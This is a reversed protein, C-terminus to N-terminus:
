GSSDDDSTWRSQGVIVIAPALRLRLVGSLATHGSPRPLLNLEDDCLKRREIDSGATTLRFVVIIGTSVVGVGEVLLFILAVFFKLANQLVSERSSRDTKPFNKCLIACYKKLGYTM